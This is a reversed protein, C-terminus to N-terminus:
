VLDTKEEEEREKQRIRKGKGQGGHLYDYYGTEKLAAKCM